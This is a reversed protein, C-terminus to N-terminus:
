QRDSKVRVKSIRPDISVGIIMVCLGAAFFGLSLAVLFAAVILFMLASLQLVDAVISM